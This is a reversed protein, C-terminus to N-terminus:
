EPKYEIRAQDAWVDASGAKPYLLVQAAPDDIDDDNFVAEYDSRSAYIRVRVGDIIRDVKPQRKSM